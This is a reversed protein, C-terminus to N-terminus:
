LIARVVCQKQPHNSHRTWGSAALSRRVAFAHRYLRRVLSSVLTALHAVLLGPYARFLGLRFVFAASYANRSIPCFVQSM